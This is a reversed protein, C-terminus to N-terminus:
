LLTNINNGIVKTQQLTDRLDAESSRLQEEQLGRTVVCCMICNLSNVKERLQQQAMDKAQM